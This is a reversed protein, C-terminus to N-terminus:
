VGKISGALKELDRDIEAKSSITTGGNVLDIRTHGADIKTYKLFIELAHADGDLLPSGYGSGKALVMFPEKPSSYIIQSYGVASLQEEVGEKMVTFDGEKIIVVSHGLSVAENYLSAYKKTVQSVCGMLGVCFM